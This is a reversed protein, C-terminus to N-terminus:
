VLAVKIGVDPRNKRRRECYAHIRMYGATPVATPGLVNRASYKLLRAHRDEIGQVYLESPVSNFEDISPTM